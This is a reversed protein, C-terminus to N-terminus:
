STKAFLGAIRQQISEAAQKPDPANRIPRGVVIYDAGKKFAEEVDVARKQDNVERNQVPRIGPVVIFLKDGLKERLSEAEMGSSIVGDCGLELARKARSLVLKEADVKFGLDNLDGDDLSTLVTVALVKVDGKEAVAARLIEDNGHVTVFTGHRSRLQRVASAVTNPIDFFKLDFFIKKGRENLWDTFRFVEGTMFLELGVKYFAVSDGLEEVLRMANSVDPVDLALILREKSPISKATRTASTM